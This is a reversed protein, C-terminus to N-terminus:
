DLDNHKRVFYPNSTESFSLNVQKVTFLSCNILEAVDLDFIAVNFGKGLNSKYILGDYGNKKFLEALIQTPVYDGVDDNPTVPRSFARDVDAWVAEERKPPEPEEFYIAVGKDHHVSCDILKLDKIVKFQGVSIYSGIWPRVESMATEKDTALYLCPIGKPNARGETAKYSLPKMREPSLPAHVEAVEEGNEIIPSWDNGLQSRWLLKDKPFFRERSKSTELITDFFINVEADHIYRYGRKTKDEFWHFSLWSKFEM